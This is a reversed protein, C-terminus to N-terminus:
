DAVQRIEDPSYERQRVVRYTGPALDITDHEEHVLQSVADVRLYTLEGADLLEARPASPTDAIAHAHGTVEGHALIVRGGERKRPQADSPIGNTRVILVDGQRAHWPAVAASRRTKRAM